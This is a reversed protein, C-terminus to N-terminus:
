KFGTIVTKGDTKSFTMEVQQGAKFQRLDIEPAVPFKMKMGPWDWEPVAEHTVKIMQKSLMVSEIVGQVQASSPEAQAAAGFLLTVILLLPKVLLVLTPRSM